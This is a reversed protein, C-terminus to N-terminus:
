IDNVPVKEKKKKTAVVVQTKKVHLEMSYNERLVSAKTLLAQFGRQSQAILVTDDAYRLYNISLGNLLVHPMGDLADLIKESYLSFLDPSCVCGQPVGKEICFEESLKERM